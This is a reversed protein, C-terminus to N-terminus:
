PHGHVRGCLAVFGTSCGGQLWPSPLPLSSRHAITFCCMRSFASLAFICRRRRAHTHTHARAGTYGVSSQRAAKSPILTTEIALQKVVFGSARTKRASLKCDDASVARNDNPEPEVGMM